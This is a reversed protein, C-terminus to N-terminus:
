SLAVAPALCHGTSSRFLSALHAGQLCNKSHETEANAYGDYRARYVSEHPGAIVSIAGFNPHGDHDTHQKQEAAEQQQAPLCSPHAAMELVHALRIAAFM